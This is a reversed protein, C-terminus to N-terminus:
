RRILSMRRANQAVVAVVLLVEDAQDNDQVNVL